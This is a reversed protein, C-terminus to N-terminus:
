GLLDRYWAAAHTHDPTLVFTIPKAHTLNM